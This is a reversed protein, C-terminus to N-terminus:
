DEPDFRLCPEYTKKGKLLYPPVPKGMGEFNRLAEEAARDLTANGSPEDLDWKIARGNAALTVCGVPFKRVKVVTPVTWLAKIRGQLEALYADGKAVDATGWESGDESGREEDDVVPIDNPEEDIDIKRFRDLTAAPDLAEKPPPKRDKEKKPEPPKEADRSVGVTEPPKVTPNPKKQPQRNKKKSTKKFALSAEIVERKALNPRDDDKQGGGMLSVGVVVGLHVAVTAIIGAM